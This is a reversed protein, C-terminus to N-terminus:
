IIYKLFPVLILGLAGIIVAIVRYIKKFYSILQQIFVHNEQAIPKYLTYMLVTDFGLDALSLLSLINTYLSNVGLYEVSLYQVFVRRSVFTVILQIFYTIIGAVSNKLLKDIRSKERMGM